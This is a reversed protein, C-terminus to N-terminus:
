ASARGAEFIQLAFILANEQAVRARYLHSRAAAFTSEVFPNEDM